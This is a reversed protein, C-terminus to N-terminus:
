RDTPLRVIFITGVAALLLVLAQAWLMSTPIAVLVAFAVFPWMMGLAFAKARLPMSGTERYRQIRPGFVRNALIREYMRESSRAYCATAIILFITTPWGPLVIGVIGMGLSATGVAGWALRAVRNSALHTGM